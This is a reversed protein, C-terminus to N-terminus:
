KVEGIRTPPWSCLWIRGVINKAPLFGWFRSDFSNTSSDGVAFYADQPIMVDTKPNFSMLQETLPYLIEGTKNTIVVRVENIYLKGDSIRLHEGPEGIIRKDYLTGPQLAAIGDSRFVVIDGRRPKRKLFTFGEVIIHDGPSVTPVM